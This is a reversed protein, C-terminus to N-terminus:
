APILIQYPNSYLSLLEANSLPRTWFALMYQELASPMNETLNEDQIGMTFNSIVNSSSWTYDKFIRQTTDIHFHTRSSGHFSTGKITLLDTYDTTPSTGSTGTYGSGILTRINATPGGNGYDTCFAGVTNTDIVGTMRGFHASDDSLLALVTGDSGGHAPINISGSASSVKEKMCIDHRGMKISGSLTNNNDYQFFNKTVLDWIPMGNLGDPKISVDSLRPVWCFYLGKSLPHNWDIRVNGVPKRGPILLEPMLLKPDPISAPTDQIPYAFLPGIPWAKDTLLTGAIDSTFLAAQSSGAGGLRSNSSPRPSNGPLDIFDNASVNISADGPATGDDSANHSINTVGTAVIADFGTTCNAAVCNIMDINDVSSYYGIGCNIALCNLLTFSGNTNACEFGAYVSDIAICNMLVAGDSLVRFARKSGLAAPNSRAICNILTPILGPSIAYSFNGNTSFEYCELYEFVAGTTSGGSLVGSDTGDKMWFGSTSVGNHRHGEPVTIRVFNTLDSTFSITLRDALGDPWDNYCELVPLISDGADSITVSNGATVRLEEGSQFPGNLIGTLYIQSSSVKGTVVGTALSTQGTVTAGHSVTGTIGGHAFVLSAASTLDSSMETAWTSMLTYDGGSARLTHIFETPM